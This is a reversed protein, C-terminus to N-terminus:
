GSMRLLGDPYESCAKAIRGWFKRAGPEDGWGNDPEMDKAWGAPQEDWWALAKALVPGVECCRKRDLAYLHDGGLQDLQGVADLAARMIGNCNHTYGGLEEDESRRGCESCHPFQIYANWSM